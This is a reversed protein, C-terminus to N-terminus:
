STYGHTSGGHRPGNLAIPTLEEVQNLCERTTGGRSPPHPRRLEWRDPRSNRIGQRSTVPHNLHIGMGRKILTPEHDPSEDM